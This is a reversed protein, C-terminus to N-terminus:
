GSAVWSTSSSRLLLLLLLLLRNLVNLLDAILPFWVGGAATKVCETIKSGLIRTNVFQPHNTTEVSQGHKMPKSGRSECTGVDLGCM